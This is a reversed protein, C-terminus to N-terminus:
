ILPLLVSPLPKDEIWARVTRSFLEPAEFNWNHGVNPAVCGQATPIATVLENASKHMIGREKQGIMILTPTTVKDLNCPLRFRMNERTIRAFTGRTLLQTNERFQPLYKAPIGLSKMNARILVEIGRFPMYIAATLGILSAGPVGTVLTGSIVTHDVVESATALIQTIVQAGLSLGVLHAKAGAVHSRIMGIIRDATNEISFPGKEISKGHEPMDVVLCRYDTFSALQPEWMWGSVGGGHLFIITKAKAPGIANVYLTM